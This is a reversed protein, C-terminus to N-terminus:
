LTWTTSSGSESLDEVPSMLDKNSELRELAMGIRRTKHSKKAEFLSFFLHTKKEVRFVGNKAPFSHLHCPQPIGKPDCAAPCVLKGTPLRGTTCSNQQTAFFFCELLVLFFKGHIMGAHSECLFPFSIFHSSLM